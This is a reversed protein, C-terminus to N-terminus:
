HLRNKMSPMPIQWRSRRHRLRIEVARHQKRQFKLVAADGLMGTVMVAGLLLSIAKRRKM